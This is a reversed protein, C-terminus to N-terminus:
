KKWVSLQINFEHNPAPWTKIDVRCSPYFNSVVEYMLQSVDEGIDADENHLSLTYHIVQGFSGEPRLSGEKLEESVIEQATRAM